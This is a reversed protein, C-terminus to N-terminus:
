FITNWKWRFLVFCSELGGLIKISLLGSSILSKSMSVKRHHLFIRFFIIDRFFVRRSMGGHRIAEALYKSRTFLSILFFIGLLHGRENTRENMTNVTRTDFKKKFFRPDIRSRPVRDISFSITLMITLRCRVFLVLIIEEFIPAKRKWINVSGGVRKWYKVVGYVFQKIRGGSGNKGCFLSKWRVM